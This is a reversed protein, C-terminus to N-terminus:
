TFNFIWTFYVENIFFVYLKLIVKQYYNVLIITYWWPRFFKEGFRNKTRVIGQGNWREYRCNNQGYFQMWIQQKQCSQTGTYMTHEKTPINIISTNSSCNLCTQIRCFGKKSVAIFEPHIMEHFSFILFYLWTQFKFEYNM